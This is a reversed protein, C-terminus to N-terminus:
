HHISVPRIDKLAKQISVDDLASLWLREITGQYHCYDLVERALVEGERDADSAVIVTSTKKLLGKIVSLQKQCDKKVIKKWTTPVVPLVSVRWPKVNPCYAEPPANELLHGFCWTVAIGDGQIFGEQKQNAGVHKAIDRAQSPKECLYLKM